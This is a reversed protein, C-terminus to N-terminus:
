TGPSQNDDDDVIIIIGAAAAAALIAALIGPAILQEGEADKGQGPKAVSTTYVKASDGARTNAQSAVPAVALVAAATVTLMKGLTKM